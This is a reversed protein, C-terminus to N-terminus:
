PQEPHRRDYARQVADIPYARRRNGSQWPIKDQSIWGRITGEAVGFLSALEPATLYANRDRIGVRKAPLSQRLGADAAVPNGSGRMPLSAIYNLLEPSAHFWEGRHRCGVFRNHLQVERLTYGPETALLELNPYSFTSLRRVLDLTKGIKVLDGIRIFYITGKREQEYTGQALSATRDPGCQAITEARRKAAREIRGTPDFTADAQARAYANRRLSEADLAVDEVSLICWQHYQKLGTSEYHDRCLPLPDTTIVGARCATGDHATGVCASTPRRTECLRITIGCGCRFAGRGQRADLNITRGCCCRVTLDQM